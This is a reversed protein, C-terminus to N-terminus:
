GKNVTLGGRDYRNRSESLEFPTGNEFYAKQKVCLIPDNSTCNLYKIDYADPKDATILREDKGIKIGLKNEIYSYISKHLIDLNLGPIRNVPMVTYELKIPESNLIRLRIIDYVDENESLNFAEKEKDTPKRINFSIVKSVLKKSDHTHKTFGDNQAVGSNLFIKPIPKASIYTGHGKVAHILKRDQLIKLAHIITVRSTHYKQALVVQEPLKNIYKKEIIKKEIDNAINQYKSM